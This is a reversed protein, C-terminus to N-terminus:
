LLRHAVERRRYTDAARRDLSVLEAGHARASMAVIGDYLAGGRVRRHGVSSDVAIL